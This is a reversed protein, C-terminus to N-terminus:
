AGLLSPQRSLEPVEVGLRDEIWSSLLQRHCWVGPRTVDEFCCVVLPRCGHSASIQGFRESLREPGVRDLQGFFHRAFRTPDEIDLMWPAPTAEALHELPPGHWWKPAGVSTRVPVGWARDFDAYRATYLQPLDV